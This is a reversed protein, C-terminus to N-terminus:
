SNPVEVDSESAKDLDNASGGISNVNNLIDQLDKNQAAAKTGGTAKKGAAAASEAAASAKAAAAAESSVATTTTQATAGAASNAQKGSKTDNTCSVLSIALLGVMLILVIKKM